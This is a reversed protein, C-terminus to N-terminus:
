RYIMSIHDNIDNNSDHDAYTNDDYDHNDVHKDDVYTVHVEDVSADDSTGVVNM